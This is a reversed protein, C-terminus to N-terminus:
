RPQPYQGQGKQDIHGYIMVQNKKDLIITLQSIGAECKNLQDPIHSFAVVSPDLTSRGLWEAM